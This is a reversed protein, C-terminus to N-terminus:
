TDINQDKPSFRLLAAVVNVKVRCESLPFRFAGGDLFALLRNVDNQVFIRFFPEPHFPLPNALVIKLGSIKELKKLGDLQPHQRQFSRLGVLLVPTAARESVTSQVNRLSWLLPCGIQRSLLTRGDKL